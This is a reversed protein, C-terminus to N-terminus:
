TNKHTGLFDTESIKVIRTLDRLSFSKKEFDLCLTQKNHMSTSEDEFIATLTNVSLNEAKKILSCSDQLLLGGGSMQSRIAACHLSVAGCSCQIQQVELRLVLRFLAISDLSSESYSYHQTPDTQSDEKHQSGSLSSM